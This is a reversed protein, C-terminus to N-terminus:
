SRRASSPWRRGMAWRNASKRLANERQRRDLDRGLRSQRKEDLALTRPAKASVVADLRICCRALSPASRRVRTDLRM